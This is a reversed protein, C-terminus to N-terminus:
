PRCAIRSAWHCARETAMGEIDFLIRRGTFDIAVRNFARLERMGLFIAPRKRLGLEGFAPSDAFAIMVNTAQLENIRLVRALSIETALTHGTVGTLTTREGPRNRLARQLAFNGVTSSAGTDIVVDVRIGDIEANTMVLQGSRKRARVVIEYGSANSSSSGDGIAITNRIFDLVVRQGQLSDTGLIGDAGIDRADLLPAVLGFFSRPGLDIQGIDVTDVMQSGAMGVLKAQRRSVLSLRAALSRSIVTNRAGTDILFDFPGQDDVRVPVTMRDHRDTGTAITDPVSNQPAIAEGAALPAAAILPLLPAILPHIPM